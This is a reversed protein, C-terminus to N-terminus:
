RNSKLSKKSFTHKHGFPPYLGREYKRIYSVLKEKKFRVIVRSKYRGPEKHEGPADPPDEFLLTVDAKEFEEDFIPRQEEM